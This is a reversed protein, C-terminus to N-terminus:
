VIEVSGDFKVLSVNGIEENQQKKLDKFWQIAVKEGLKIGEDGDSRYHVGCFNRGIAVNSAIKNLEGHITMQSADAGSYTTLTQGDLSEVASLGTSSWAADAIYLKIITSCAGAIAAHGAPYSPHTPSGEAVQLPLFAKEEGGKSLNYAKVANITASSILDAHVTGSPLVGEMEKVVRAAMAEPRLRLHKAWKQVWTAKLAHRAVETVACGLDVPGGNTVFRDEKSLVPFASQRPRGMLILAAYLFQQYVFDVHVISALDRPTSCYRTAGLTQAVPINGNQIALYNAETIGYTGTREVYKQTISHAGFTVPHLLLQSVYPGVDENPGLGRFLVKRTVVGGVKPGKFDSGFANLSAVARDIDADAGGENLESFTKDRLINKEYVEIMDSAGHRSNLAPPVPMVFGEPDNGMNEFALAAQPSIQKRAGAKEIQDFDKQEGSKMAIQLEKIASESAILTTADHSFGKSYLGKYNDNLVDPNIVQNLEVDQVREASQHMRHSALSKKIDKIDKKM